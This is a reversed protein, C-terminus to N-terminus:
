KKFHLGFIFHKKLFFCGVYTHVHGELNLYTKKTALNGDSGEEETEKKRHMVTQELADRTSEHMTAEGGSKEELRRGGKWLLRGEFFFVISREAWGVPSSSMEVTAKTM